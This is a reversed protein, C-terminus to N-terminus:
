KLRDQTPRTHPLDACRLVVWYSYYVCCYCYVYIMTAYILTAYILTAYITTTEYIMEYIEEYIVACTVVYIMADDCPCLDASTTV